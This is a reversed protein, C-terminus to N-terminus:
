VHLNQHKVERNQHPGYSKCLPILGQAWSPGAGIRAIVPAALVPSIDHTLRQPRTAAWTHAIASSAICIALRAAIKRSGSLRMTAGTRVIAPPALALRASIKRSGSLRLTAGTRAIASKAVCLAVGGVRSRDQTFRQPAHRGLHACDRTASRVPRAPSSEQTSRSAGARM